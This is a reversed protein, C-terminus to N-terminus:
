SFTHPTHTHVSRVPKLGRKALWNRLTIRSVRFHRALDSQSRGALLAAHLYTRLDSPFCRQEALAEQLGLQRPM